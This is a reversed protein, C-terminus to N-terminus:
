ASEFLFKELMDIGFYLMRHHKDVYWFYLDGFLKRLFAVEEKTTARCVLYHLTFAYLDAHTVYKLTSPDRLMYTSNPVMTVGQNCSVFKKDLYVSQDADAFTEMTATPTLFKRHKLLSVLKRNIFELPYDSLFLKRWISSQVFESFWDICFTCSLEVIQNLDLDEEIYRHILKYVVSKFGINVTSSFVNLQAHLKSSELLLSLMYSSCDHIFMRLERIMAMTNCEMNIYLWFFNWLDRIDEDTHVFVPNSIYRFYAITWNSLGVFDVHGLSDDFIRKQMHQPLFDIVSSMYSVDSVRIVNETFLAVALKPEQWDVCLEAAEGYWKFPDNQLGSLVLPLLRIGDFLRDSFATNRLAIALQKCKHVSLYHMVNDLVDSPLAIM